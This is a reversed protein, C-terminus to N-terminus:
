NEGSDSKSEKSYDGFVQSIVNEFARQAIKIDWNQGHNQYHYVLMYRTKEVNVEPGVEKNADILTYIKIYLM